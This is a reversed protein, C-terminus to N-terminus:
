DNPYFVPFHFLYTYHTIVGLYDKAAYPDSYYLARALYGAIDKNKDIYKRLINKITIDKLYDFIYLPFKTYNNDIPPLNENINHCEINVTEWLEKCNENSLFLGDKYGLAVILQFFSTIQTNDFKKLYEDLLGASFEENDEMRSIQHEFWKKDFFKKCIRKTHPFSEFAVCGNLCQGEIEFLEQGRFLATIDSNALQKMFRRTNKGPKVFYYAYLAAYFNDEWNYHSNEQKCVREITEIINKNTM